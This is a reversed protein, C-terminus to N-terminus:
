RPRGDFAQRRVVTILTRALFQPTTGQSLLRGGRSIRRSRSAHGYNFGAEPLPTPHEHAFYQLDSPALFLDRAEHMLEFENV